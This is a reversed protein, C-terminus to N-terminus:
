EGRKVVNWNVEAFLAEFSPNGFPVIRTFKVTTHGNATGLSRITEVYL